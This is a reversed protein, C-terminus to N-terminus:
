GCTGVLSNFWGPQGGLMWQPGEWVTGIIPIHRRSLLQMQLLAAHAQPFHLFPPTAIYVLDVDPRTLLNELAGVDPVGFRQAMALAGANSTGAIGVLSVGPIQMFQQLAFLGFGGAGVAGIRLTDM